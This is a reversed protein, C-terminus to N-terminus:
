LTNPEMRLFESMAKIVQQFVLPVFLTIDAMAIM